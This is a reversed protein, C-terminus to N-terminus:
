VLTRVENFLEAEKEIVEEDGLAAVCKEDVIAQIYPALKRISEVDCSLIDNRDKQLMADDIGTLYCVFDFVGEASPTMPTDIKAITGIIYKLMDQEDADFNKVYDVANRYVDYTRSLNPDRYSTFYSEGTRSFNCMCGYAGGQVRVNLWLYDYSFIMQLVKLAGDYPLGANTYDGGMAAYQVKSATKFGENRKVLEVESAAKDTETKSMHKSLSNLAEELVDTIDQKGTYSVILNDPSAVLRLAEKLNKCLGDYSEEFNKNISNVFEYFSIGDTIEKVYAGKSFYSL